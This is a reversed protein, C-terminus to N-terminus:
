INPKINHNRTPSYNGLIEIFKKGSKKVFVKNLPNYPTKSGLFGYLPPRIGGYSPTPPPLLPVM